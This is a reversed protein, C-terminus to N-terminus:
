IQFEGDDINGYSHEVILAWIGVMTSSYSDGVNARLFDGLKTPLYVMGAGHNAYPCSSRMVNWIEQDLVAYKMMNGSTKGTTEGDIEM